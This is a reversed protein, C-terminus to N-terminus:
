NKNAEAFAKWADDPYINTNMMQFLMFEQCTQLFEAFDNKNDFSMTQGDNSVHIHGEVDERIQRIM